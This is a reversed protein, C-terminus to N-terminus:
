ETKPHLNRRQRFPHRKPHKVTKFFRRRNASQSYKDTGTITEKKTQGGGGDACEKLAFKVINRSRKHM